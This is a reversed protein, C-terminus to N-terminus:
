SAVITKLVEYLFEKGPGRAIEDAISKRGETKQRAKGELSGDVCRIM